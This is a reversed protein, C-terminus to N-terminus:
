FLSVTIRTSLDYLVHCIMVTGFGIEKGKKVTFPVYFSLLFVALLGQWAHGLGFHISFLVLITRFIFKKWKTDTGMRLSLIALPVGYCMDEWFVTLDMQWPTMIGSSDQPFGAFALLNYLAIRYAALVALFAVWKLIPKKEIRLLNRYRSKYVVFMMFLGMIWYPFMYSAVETFSM